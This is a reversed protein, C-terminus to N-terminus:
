LEYTVEDQMLEPILYCHWDGSLLKQEAVDLAEEIPILEYPCNPRVIYPYETTVENYYVQVRM